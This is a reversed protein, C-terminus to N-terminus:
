QGNRQLYQLLDRVEQPKLEKLINEPMLSIPSVKIEDIDDRSITTRENKAGLVTVAVDTEEALLGTVVRGDRTLIINSLYEKRIQANPDVM